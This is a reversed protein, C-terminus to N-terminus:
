SANSIDESDLSEVARERDEEEMHGLQGSTDAIKGAEDRDVFREATTMFGDHPKGERPWNPHVKELASVADMHTRGLYTEGNFRIAASKIQEKDGAAPSGEM